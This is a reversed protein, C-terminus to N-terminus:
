IKGGAKKYVNVVDQYSEKPAGYKTTQNYVDYIKNLPLLTAYKQVFSPFTFGKPWNKIDNTLGQIANNPNVPGYIPATKNLPALSLGSLVDNSIKGPSSLSGSPKISTSSPLKISPVVPKGIENAKTSPLRLPAPLEPASPLTTPAVPFDTPRLQQTENSGAFPDTARLTLNKLGFDLANGGIRAISDLLGNRPQQLQSDLKSRGIDLAQQYTLGVNKWYDDTKTATHFFDFRGDLANSISGLNEVLNGQNDHFTVQGLPTTPSVPDSTIKVIRGDRDASTATLVVLKNGQKDVQDTNDQTVPIRRGYEDLVYLDPSGALERNLTPTGQKDLRLVDIYQDHNAMRNQLERVKEMIGGTIEGQDNISGNLEKDYRILLKDISTGGLTNIGERKKNKLEQIIDEYGYHNEDGNIRVSYALSLAQDFKNGNGDLEYEQRAKKVSDRFDNNTRDIEGQLEKAYKTGGSRSTASGKRQAIDRANGANKLATLAYEQDGEQVATNYEKVWFDYLDVADQYTKGPSQAAKAEAKLLRLRRGESEAKAMAKSQEILLSRQAAGPASALARDVIAKYSSGSIDGRNFALQTQLPIYNDVSTSTRFRALSNARPRLYFGKTGEGILAQRAM